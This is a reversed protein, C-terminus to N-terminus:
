NQNNINREEVLVINQCNDCIYLSYGCDKTIYTFKNGCKRCVGKNYDWRDLIKSFWRGGIAYLIFLITTAALAILIFLIISLFTGM